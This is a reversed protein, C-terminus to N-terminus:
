DSGPTQAAIRRLDKAVIFRRDERIRRISIQYRDALDEDSEDWLDRAIVFRRILNTMVANRTVNRGLSM